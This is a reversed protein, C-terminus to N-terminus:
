VEGSVKALMNRCDPDLASDATGVREDVNQQANQAVDGAEEVGPVDDGLVGLRGVLVLSDVLVGLAAVGAGLAASLDGVNVDLAGASM